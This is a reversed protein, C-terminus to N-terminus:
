SSGLQLLERDEEPDHLRKAGTRGASQGLLTRPDHDGMRISRYLLVDAPQVLTSLLGPQGGRATRGARHIFHTADRPFDYNIVHRVMPFDLGRAAIDTCIMLRVDGDRFAELVSTRQKPPTEGHLMVARLKPFAVHLLDFIRHARRAGNCFLLTHGEEIWPDHSARELLRILEQDKDGRVYHFRQQLTPVMVGSHSLSSVSPFRERIRAAVVQPLTAATLVKQVTHMRGDAEIAELLLSVERGILESNSTGADLMADAEDIALYRLRKFGFSDEKMHYLLRDPTGVLLRVLGERLLVRQPTFKAGGTVCAVQPTHDVDSCLEQAVDAIQRALDRNPV